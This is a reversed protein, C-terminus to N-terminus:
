PSLVMDASPSTESFIFFEKLIINVIVPGLSLEM